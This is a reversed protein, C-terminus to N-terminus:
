VPVFTMPEGPVREALVLRGENKLDNVALAVDTMRTPFKAYLDDLTVRGHSAHLGRVVSMVRENFAIDPMAASEVHGGGSIVPPHRM